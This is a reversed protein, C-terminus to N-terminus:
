KLPEFFNQNFGNVTLRDSMFSVQQKNQKENLSARAFVQKNM